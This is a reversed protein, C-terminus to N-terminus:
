PLPPSTSHIQIEDDVKQVLKLFISILEEQHFEGTFSDPRPSKNPQSPKKKKKTTAFETEISMVLRNLNDIEKWNLRPLKYTKLYKNIGELNNLKNAYLQM